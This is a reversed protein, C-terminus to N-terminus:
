RTFYYFSSKRMPQVASHFRFSYKLFTGCDQKLYSLAIDERHQVDGAVIGPNSYMRTTRERISKQAVVILPVNGHNSPVDGPRAMIRSETAIGLTVM